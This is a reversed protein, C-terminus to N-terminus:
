HTGLDAFAVHRPDLTITGNGVTGVTYDTLKWLEIFGDQGSRLGVVTKCPGKGYVKGYGYRNIWQALTM